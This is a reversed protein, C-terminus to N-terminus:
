RNANTPATRELFQILSAANRLAAADNVYQSLNERVLRQAELVSSLTTAGERFGLLSLAAVRNARDVLQRSRVAREGAVTYSLRARTVAVSTELQVLELQAQARNRAAQAALVSGRNSNFVPIPLAIGITPLLQDGLGGPDHRDFGATITPLGYRQRRELAISLDAARLDANAAAIPLPIGSAVGPIRPPADLTDAIIIPESAPEIGMVNRVALMTVVAELSDLEAMNQAQGANLAALEVDLESGDGADHRIRALILLSDADRATSRSLQARAAAAVAQTYTTDAEYVITQRELEYRATAADLAARAVSVRPNRLWLFDLPAELAVHHQPTDKSYSLSLLPNEYRRARMLEAWALASDARAIATRPGRQLASSIAAVRSVPQQAGCPSIAFLAVGLAYARLPGLDNAM